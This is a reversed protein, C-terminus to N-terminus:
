EISFTASAVISGDYLLQLTYQGLPIEGYRDLLTHFPTNLPIFHNLWSSVGRPFARFGSEVNLKVGSPATLVFQYHYTRARALQDYTINVKVGMSRSDLCTLISEIPLVQAHYILVGDNYVSATMRTGILSVSKAAPLTCPHWETAQGNADVVRLAYPVGPILSDLTCVPDTLGASAVWYFPTPADEAYRYQVKWPGQGDEWRLSVTGDEQVTCATVRFGESHAAAAPASPVPTLAPPAAVPTPTLKIVKAGCYWCFNDRAELDSKCSSCSAALACPLLMSLLLLTCIVTRFLHKRM